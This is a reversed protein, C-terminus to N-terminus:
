KPDRRYVELCFAYEEKIVSPEEKIVQNGKIRTVPSEEKYIVRSKDKLAKQCEKKTQFPYDVAPIPFAFNELIVFVLWIKM